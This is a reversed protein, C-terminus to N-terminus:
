LGINIKSITLKAYAGITEILPQNELVPLILSIKLNTAKEDAKFINSLMNNIGFNPIIPAAVAVAIDKNVINIM